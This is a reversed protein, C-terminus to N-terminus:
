YNRKDNVLRKFTMGYLFGLVYTYRKLWGIALYRQLLKWRKNIYALYIGEFIIYAIIFPLFLIPESVIIVNVFLFLMVLWGRTVVMRNNEGDIVGSNFIRKIFSGIAGGTPWDIRRRKEDQRLVENGMEPIMLMAEENEM